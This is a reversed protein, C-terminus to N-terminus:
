GHNLVLPAMKVLKVVTLKELVGSWTTLQQFIDTVYLLTILFVYM